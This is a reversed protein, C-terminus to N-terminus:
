DREHTLWLASALGAFLLTPIIVWGPHIPVQWRNVAWWVVVCKVAILLWAVAMFWRVRTPYQAVDIHFHPTMRRHYGQAM